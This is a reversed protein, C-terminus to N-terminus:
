GPTSPSAALSAPPAPPVTLSVNAGTPATFTLREPSTVSQIFGGDAGAAVSVDGSGDHAIVSSSGSPLVGAWVQGQAESNRNFFGVVLGKTEAVSNSACSSTIGGEIEGAVCISALGPVIWLSADASRLVQRSDADIVGASSLPADFGAPLVDATTAPRQLAGFARVLSSPMAVQRDPTTGASSGSAVHTTGVIAIAAAAGALAAGRGYIRRSARM